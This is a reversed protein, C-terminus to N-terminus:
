DNNELMIVREAKGLMIKPLPKPALGPSCAPPSTRGQHAKEQNIRCRCTWRCM